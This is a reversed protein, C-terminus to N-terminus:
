APVAASRIASVLTSPSLEGLPTAKPRMEVLFTQAGDGDLALLKLGSHLALLDRCEDAAAPHDSGLVVVAPEAAEVVEDLSEEVDTVDGVVVIDREPALTACVIDHLVGPMDVILVRIPRLTARDDAKPARRV